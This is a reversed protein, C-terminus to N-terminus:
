VTPNCDRALIEVLFAPTYNTWLCRRRVSNAIKACAHAAENALKGVFSFKISSFFGSLEKIEQCISAIESRGAGPEEM